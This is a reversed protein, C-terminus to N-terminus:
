LEAAKSAEVMARITNYGEIQRDPEGDLHEGAPFTPFTATVGNITVHMITDDLATDLVVHSHGVRAETTTRTIM